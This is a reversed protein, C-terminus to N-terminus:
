HSDLPLFCVKSLATNIMLLITVECETLTACADSPFALHAAQKWAQRVNPAETAIQLVENEVRRFMKWETTQGLALFRGLLKHSLFSFSLIVAMKYLEECKRRSLCAIASSSKLHPPLMAWHYLPKRGDQLNRFQDEVRTVMSCNEKLLINFGWNSRISCWWYTFSSITNFCSSYWFNFLM